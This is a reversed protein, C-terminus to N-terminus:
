AENRSRMPFLLSAISRRSCLFCILGSFMLGIAKLRTNQYVTPEHAIPRNLQLNNFRGCVNGKAKKFTQAIARDSLHTFDIVEKECSQCFRGKESNTMENWSEHCPENIKLQFTKKKM